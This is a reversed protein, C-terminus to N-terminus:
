LGCNRALDNKAFYQQFVEEEEDDLIPSEIIVDRLIQPKLRNSEEIEFEIAIRQEYIGWHQLLCEQISLGPWTNSIFPKFAVAGGSHVLFHWMVLKPNDCYQRIIEPQMDEALTIVGKLEKSLESGLQTNRQIGKDTHHIYDLMIQVLMPKHLVYAMFHCLFLYCRENQPLAADFTKQLSESYRRMYEHVEVIIAWWVDHKSGFYYRILSHTVGAEESIDRLSVQNFGRECFLFAASSLIMLKTRKAEEASRRGQKRQTM